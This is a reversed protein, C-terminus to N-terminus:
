SMELQLHRANTCGTTGFGRNEDRMQRGKEHFVSSKTDEAGSKLSSASYHVFPACIQVSRTLGGAATKHCQQESM